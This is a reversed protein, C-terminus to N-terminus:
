KLASLEVCHQVLVTIRCDEKDEEFKIMQDNTLVYDRPVAAGNSLGDANLLMGNWLVKVTATPETIGPLASIDLLDGTFNDFIHTTEGQLICVKQLKCLCELIVTIYAHHMKMLEADACPNEEMTIACVDNPIVIPEQTVTKTSGCGCGTPYQYAM